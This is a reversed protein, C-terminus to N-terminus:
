VYMIYASQEMREMGLGKETMRKNTTEKVHKKQRSCFETTILSILSNSDNHESHSKEM